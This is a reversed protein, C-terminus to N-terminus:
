KRFNTQSLNLLLFYLCVWLTYMLPTLNKKIMILILCNKKIVNKKMKFTKTVSLVRVVLIHFEFVIYKQFLNRQNQFIKIKFSVFLCFNVVHICKCILCFIISAILFFFIHIPPNTYTKTATITHYNSKCNGISDTGIVVATTLEFRSRPSTYLM